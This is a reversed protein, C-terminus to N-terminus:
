FVLHTDRRDSLSEHGEQSGQIPRWPQVWGLGPEAMKALHAGTM